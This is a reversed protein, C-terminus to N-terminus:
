RVACRPLTLHACVRPVNRAAMSPNARTAGGVSRPSSRGDRSSRPRRRSPCTESRGPSRRSPRGSSRARPSSPSSRPGSRRTRRDRPGAASRRRRVPRSPIRPQGKRVPDLFLVVLVRAGNGRRPRLGRGTPRRLAHLPLRAVLKLLADSGSSSNSAPKCRTASPRRRLEAGAGSHAACRTSGVGRRSRRARASTPGSRAPSGDSSDRAARPRRAVRADRRVDDGGRERARPARRGRDRGGDPAGDRDDGRGHGWRRRGEVAERARRQRTGARRSRGRDGRQADQLLAGGVAVQRDAGPEHGGHDCGLNAPCPDHLAEARCPRLPWPLLLNWCVTSRAETTRNSSLRSYTSAAVKRTARTPTPSGRTPTPSPSGLASWSRRRSWRGCPERAVVCTPVSRWGPVPRQPRVRRLLRRTGRPVVRGRVSGGLM